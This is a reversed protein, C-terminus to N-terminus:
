FCVQTHFNTYFFLKTVIIWLLSLHTTHLNTHLRVLQNRARTYLRPGNTDLGVPEGAAASLTNCCKHNIDRVSQVVRFVSFLNNTIYRSSNRDEDGGSKM